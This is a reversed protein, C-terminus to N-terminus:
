LWSDLFDRATRDALDEVATTPSSRKLQDVSFTGTAVGLTDCGNAKGSEIDWPTDGVLLVKEFRTCCKKEMERIASSVIPARTIYRDGFGGGRFFKSIDFHELKIYAGRRINGTALGIHTGMRGSVTQLLKEVGPLCYGHRRRLERRLIAPYVKQIEEWIRFTMRINKEKLCESLIFKDTRGSPRVGVRSFDMGLLYELSATLSGLGAGKTRILTGDIDFLILRARRNKM